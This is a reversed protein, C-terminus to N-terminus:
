IFYINGLFLGLIGGLNSILGFLSMTPWEKYSMYSLSGYFIKLILLNNEIVSDVNKNTINDHYKVYDINMQSFKNIYIDVDYKITECERPCLKSCKNTINNFHNTELSLGEVQCWGIALLLM